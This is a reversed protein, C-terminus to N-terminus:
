EKILKAYSIGDLEVINFNTKQNDTRAIFNDFILECKKFEVFDDPYLPLLKFNSGSLKKDKIFYVVYWENNNYLITGTYSNLALKESELDKMSRRIEEKAMRIGEIKGLLRSAELQNDFSLYETVLDSLHGIKSQLTTDLINLIDIQAEITEKM